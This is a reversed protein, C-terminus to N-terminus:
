QLLKKPRRKLINTYLKNINRRFGAINLHSKIFNIQMTNFYVFKLIVPYNFMIKIIPKDIKLKLKATKNKDVVAYALNISRSWSYINFSGSLFELNSTKLNPDLITINLDKTDTIFYYPLLVQITVIDNTELLTFSEKIINHVNNNIPHYNESFNYKYDYCSEEKNFYIEIDVDIFSNIYFFKDKQSSIAPCLLKSYTKNKEVNPYTLEPVEDKAYIGYQVNVKKFNNFLNIM